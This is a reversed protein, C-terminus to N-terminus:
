IIGHLQEELKPRPMAGIIERVEQGDQFVKMAPISSIDYRTALDPQEDINVKAIRLRGEHEAAIQELVPALARCPGCWPAWFDVLVPVASHLVDDEFTEETVIIPQSM